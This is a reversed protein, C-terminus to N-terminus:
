IRGQTGLKYDEELLRVVGTAAYLSSESCESPFIPLQPSPQESPPSSTNITNRNSEGTDTRMNIVLDKVNEAYSKYGAKEFVKILNNYTAASGRKQKWM